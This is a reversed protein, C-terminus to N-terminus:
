DGKYTYTEPIAVVKSIFEKFIGNADAAVGSFSFVPQLITCGRSSQNVLVLKIHDITLTEAVGIDTESVGDDITFDDPMTVRTLADKVSLIEMEGKKEYDFLEMDIMELGDPGFYFNIHENGIVRIGDLLRYFSVRVRYPHEGADDIITQTSRIGLYEYEGTLFPILGLVRWATQEIEGETMDLYEKSSTGVIEGYIKNGDSSLQIRKYDTFENDFAEQMQQLEDATIVREEIYYVPFMPPYTDITHNIIKTNEDIYKSLYDGLAPNSIDIRLYKESCGSLLLVFICIALVRTRKM